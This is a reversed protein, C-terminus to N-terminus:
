ASDSWSFWCESGNVLKVWYTTRFGHKLSGVDAIEWEPILPKSVVDPYAPAGDPGLIRSEIDACELMKRSTVMAAQQRNVSFALATFPGEWPKFPHIGRLCMVLDALCGTTKGTNHHVVGACVYNGHEPVTFDWVLGHRLYRHRIIQATTDKGWAM